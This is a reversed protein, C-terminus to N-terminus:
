LNRFSKPLPALGSTKDRARPNWNKEPNKKQLDTKKPILQTYRHNRYPM